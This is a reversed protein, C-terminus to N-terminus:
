HSDKVVKIFFRKTLFYVYKWESIINFPVDCFATWVDLCVCFFTSMLVRPHVYITCRSLLCVSWYSETTMFEYNDSNHNTLPTHLVNKPEKLPVWDFRSEYNLLIGGDCTFIDRSFWTLRNERSIALRLGLLLWTSGTVAMLYGRGAWNKSM